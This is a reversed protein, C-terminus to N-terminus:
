LPVCAVDAGAALAAGSGAFRGAVVALAPGLVNHDIAHCAFCDSAKADKLGAPEPAASAAPASTAQTGSAVADAFRATVLPAAIAATCALSVVGVVPITWPNTRTGSSRPHRAKKMTCG